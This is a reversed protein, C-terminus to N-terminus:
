SPYSHRLSQDSLHGKVAVGQLDFSASRHRKEQESFRRDNYSYATPSPAPVPSISSIVPLPQTAMRPISQCSCGALSNDSRIAERPGVHKLVCVGHNQGQRHFRFNM